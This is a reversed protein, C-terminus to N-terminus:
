KLKRWFNNLDSNLSLADAHYPHDPQTLLTKLSSKVVELDGVQLHAMILWWDINKTYGEPQDVVLLLVREFTEAAKQGQGTKLYLNALIYQAEWYNPDTSPFSNLLNIATSFDKKAIAIYAEEFTLARDGARKLGSVNPFEYYKALLAENSFYRDYHWLSGITLLLLLGAAIALVRRLPFLGRNKGRNEIAAVKQRLQEFALQDLIKASALYAEYEKRLMENQDLEKEFVQKEAAKMRGEAYAEVRDFYELENM